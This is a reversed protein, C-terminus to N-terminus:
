VAKRQPELIQTAINIYKRGAEQAALAVEKFAANKRKSLIKELMPMNLGALVELRPVSLMSMALNSAEGGFMDTLIIVGEGTNVRSIAQRLLDRHHQPKEEPMLSVAEFQSQKGVMLEATELFSGALNGQTLLIVGIM